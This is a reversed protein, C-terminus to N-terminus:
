GRPAHCVNRARARVSVSLNTKVYFLYNFLADINRFQALADFQATVYAMLVTQQEATLVSKGPPAALKNNNSSNADESSGGAAPGNDPACEALYEKLLEMELPSLSSVIARAISHKRHTNTPSSAMVALPSAGDAGGGGGGGGSGSAGGGSGGGGIGGKIVSLVRAITAEDMGIECLDGALVLRLDRITEVGLEVLADYFPYARCDRLHRYCYYYM